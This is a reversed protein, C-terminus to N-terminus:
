YMNIMESLYFTCQELMKSAERLDFPEKNHGLCMHTLYRYETAQINVDAVALKHVFRISEDRLPDLGAIIIRTPPFKELIEKPILKPSLTYHQRDHLEDETYEERCIYMFSTNLIPDDLSFLISPSFLSMGCALAPYITM